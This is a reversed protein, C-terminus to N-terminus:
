RDKRRRAGRLCVILGFCLLGFFGPMGPRTNQQTCICSPVEPVPERMDEVPFPDDGPGPNEPGPDNNTGGGIVVPTANFDLEIELLSTKGPEEANVTAALYTRTSGSLFALDIVTNETLAFFDFFGLPEGDESSRVDFFFGEGVQRLLVIEETGVVMFTPTLLDFPEDRIEMAEPDAIELTISGSLDTEWLLKGEPDLKTLKATTRDSSDELDDWLLILNDNDDYDVSYVERKTWDGGEPEFFEQNGLGDYTFFRTGRDNESFYYVLFKGDPTTLANNLTAGIFQSGFTVSPVRVDGNFEFLLSGQSVPAVQFNSRTFVMVRQSFPGWVVPGVAAEYIGLYDESASFAEDPQEWVVEGERTMRVTIGYPDLVNPMTTGRLLIDGDPGFSAESPVVPLGMHAYSYRSPTESGLEVGLVEAFDQSVSLLFVEGDEAILLRGQASVGEPIALSTSRVTDFIVGAEAPMEIAISCVLAIMVALGCGLRTDNM